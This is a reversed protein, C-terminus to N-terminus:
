DYQLYKVRKKLFEDMGKDLIQYLSDVPVDKELGLRIKDTGMAKDFMDIRETSFISEQLNESIITKLLFIQTQMPKFTNFDTIHIQVGKVIKGTFKGYYPKYFTPRFCVGSLDLENMKEAFTDANFEPKGILRFPMTYGVGENVTGLEGICGTAAIYFPTQSDPVHPSTPVWQLGTDMYNMRRKWGSLPVVTLDANIDFESNFFLALEGITMGYIYPIPYMGIFSSFKEDLVPGEVLTGGLPNPRDLVIFKISNEQAAQMALAMTYIYTYARSGIDQIDFVLVDLNKLMDPTPKRTKGYLSYIPIGSNEDCGHPVYQGAETAGYLGHEPSFLALLKLDKQESLVDITSKLSATVGTQNTILGIKQNKVLDM